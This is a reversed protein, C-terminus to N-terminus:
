LRYSHAPQTTGEGARLSTHLMGQQAQFGAFPSTALGLGRLEAQTVQSKCTNGLKCAIRREMAFQGGPDM